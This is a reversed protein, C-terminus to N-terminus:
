ARYAGRCYASTALGARLSHAAFHGHLGARATARQVARAVARTSIREHEIRAGYIVRFLPGAPRGVRAIWASLAEVPCSELNESRPIDTYAGRGLPDGKSRRLFIRVGEASFRVSDMDLGVLDSARFAGAFGVLLLARDRDALPGNGLAAVAQALEHDLLAHVGIERGGRQRAIDRELMRIRADDDPRPLGAHKHALGISSRAHRITSYARGSEALHALYRRLTEVSAPLAHAGQEECWRAFGDWDRQYNRRTAEAYAEREFRQAAEELEDVTRAASPSTAAAPAKAARTPLKYVEAGVVDRHRARAPNALAASNPEDWLALQM